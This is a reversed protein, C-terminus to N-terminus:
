ALLSRVNRYGGEAGFPVTIHTLEGQQGLSFGRAAADSESLLVGDVGLRHSRSHLEVGEGALPSM